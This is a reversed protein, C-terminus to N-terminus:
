PDDMALCRAREAEIEESTMAADPSWNDLAPTGVGNVFHVYEALAAIFGESRADTPGFANVMIGVVRRNLEWNEEWTEESTASDAMNELLRLVDMCAKAGERRPDTDASM